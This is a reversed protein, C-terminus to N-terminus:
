NKEAEEFLGKYYAKQMAPGVGPWDLLASVLEAGTLGEPLKVPLTHELVEVAVVQVFGPAGSGDQIVKEELARGESNPLVAFRAKVTGKLAATNVTATTVFSPKEEINMM